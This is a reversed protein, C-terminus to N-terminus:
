ATRRAMTLQPAAPSGGPLICSQPPALETNMAAIERELRDVQADVIRLATAKREEGEPTCLDAGLDFMDNQILELMADADAPAHLRAIGIVCNAEDVTGYAAVRLDHKPVRRGTGLSTEGKDGGRTYIRTLKVMLAGGRVDPHRAARDRSGPPDRAVADAQQWAPPQVGRWPDDVRNRPGPCRADGRGRRNCSDSSAREHGTYIAAIM